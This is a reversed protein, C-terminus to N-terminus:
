RDTVRGGLPGEGRDFPARGALLRRIRYAEEAWGVAFYDAHAQEYPDATGADLSALSATLSALRRRYFRPCEVSADVFRGGRLEYVTDWYLRAANCPAASFVGSPLESAGIIESVGDGDVDEIRLWTEEPTRASATPGGAIDFAEVQEGGATGGTSYTILLRPPRGRELRAAELEGFWAWDPWSPTLRVRLRPRDAIGDYIALSTAEADNCIDDSRWVARCLVAIEDRGCGDFDARIATCQVTAPDLSRGAHAAEALAAAYAPPVRPVGLAELDRDRLEVGDGALAPHALVLVLGLALSRM